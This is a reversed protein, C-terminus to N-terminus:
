ALKRRLLNLGFMVAIAIALLASTSSSGDPVAAGQATIRFAPLTSGNDLWTSDDFSAKVSGATALSQNWNAEVRENVNAPKLVLWYNTGMVVPVTGAVTFSVLSNNTTGFAVTPTGSGLFTQIANNPSGASDAYLFVNVAGTDTGTLGLDVTALNGSVVATFQAAEELLTGLGVVNGVTVGSNSVYTDGPGLTNFVIANAQAQVPCFGILLATIGVPAFAPVAALYKPIKM